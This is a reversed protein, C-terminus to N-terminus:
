MPPATRRALDGYTIEAAAEWAAREVRVAVTHSGAIFSIQEDARVAEDAIVQAGALAPVPPVTGVEWDPCAEILEHETLLRAPSGILQGVKGLDVADVADLVVLTVRGEDTGIGVVKAFTRPEVGEAHATALATYALPHPHIEYPIDNASLWSALREDIQTPTASTM